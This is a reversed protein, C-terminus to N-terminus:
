NHLSLSISPFARRKLEAESIILLSNNYKEHNLVTLALEDSGDGRAFRLTAYGKGKRWTGGLLTAVRQEDGLVFLRTKDDKENEAGERDTSMVITGGALKTAFFVCGEVKAIKTV